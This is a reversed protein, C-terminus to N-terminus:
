ICTYLTTAVEGSARIDVNGSAIYYRSQHSDSVSLAIVELNDDLRNQGSFHRAEPSPMLTAM